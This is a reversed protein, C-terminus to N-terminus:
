KILVSFILAQLLSLHHRHHLIRTLRVSQWLLLWLHSMQHALLHLLARIPYPYLAVFPNTFIHTMSSSILPFHHRKSFTQHEWFEVHHSIRLRQSILNYYHWCQSFNSLREKEQDRGGNPSTHTMEGDRKQKSIHTTHTHTRSWTYTHTCTLVFISNGGTMVGNKGVPNEQTDAHLVLLGFWAPRIRRPSM